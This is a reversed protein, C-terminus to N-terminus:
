RTVLVAAVEDARLAMCNVGHVVGEKPPVEDGNFRIMKGQASLMFIDDGPLIAAAAVLADTKMAYKGGGGASKNAAFGSMARITGKGNADALFIAGDENTPAAAVVSDGAELRMGPGGQPPILKESFRIARGQRTAIFLDGDGMTRCAAVLPGFKAPEFMATGPKMYEGFVHHRLFRVMGRESVLVVGGKVLDPLAAVIFEGELLGMPMFASRESISGGGSRGEAIPAASVPMRFARARNTFLLLAQNAEAMALAAIADGETLDFDSAGWGSRRQRLYLHRATRRAYGRTTITVLQLTTVPENPVLPPLSSEDESSLGDEAVKVSRGPQRAAKLSAIEQELGEIYRKLAPDTNSLDPRENM